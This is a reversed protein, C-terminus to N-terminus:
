SAQATPRRADAVASALEDRNMTSRGSVKLERAMTLLEDKSRGSLDDQEGSGEDEAVPSGGGAGGAGGGGAGSGGAGSGGAGSGGAGGGGAGPGSAGGGGAGGVGAGTGSAGGGQRAEVSRRLAELLDTVETAEPAKSAAVVENGALKAEILENVQDTYTDRYDEPRWPASMSEILTRAMDLEKGSSPGPEPLHDLSEAPDRVEDAYNLTELALARGDEHARVAALYQKSRMVFTAIAVRNTAAMASALLAYVKANEEKAPALWYTKQFYIPDIEDLDVFALVDISRSRGPAIEELERPEVVVVQGDQSDFGKVIDSFPVEEGTRENVRRNRIRDATGRQYQHFHVSHDETASFLGVPVTVLGFTISGSWIARAV